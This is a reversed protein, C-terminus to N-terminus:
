PCPPAGPVPLGTPAKTASQRIEDRKRLGNIHKFVFSRAEKEVTVHVVQNVDITFAALTVNDSVAKATATARADASKADASKITCDREAFLRAAGASAVESAASKADRRTLFPSGFEFAVLLVVALVVAAILTKLATM